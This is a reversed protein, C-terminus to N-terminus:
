FGTRGHDKPPRHVTLGAIPDYAVYHVSNTRSEAEVCDDHLTIRVLESLVTTGGPLGLYLSARHDEECAFGGDAAGIGSSRELIKQLLAREMPRMTSLRPPDTM